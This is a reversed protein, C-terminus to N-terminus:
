MQQASDISLYRVNWVVHNAVADGDDDVAFISVRNEGPRLVMRAINSGPSYIHRGLNPRADSYIRSRVGTLDFFFREDDVIRFDDRFLIQAQADLNEISKLTQMNRFIFQPLADVDGANTVTFQIPALTATASSLAVAVLMENNPGFVIAGIGAADAPQVFPPPYSIGNVFGLMYSAGFTDDPFATDDDSYWFVGNRDQAAAEPRALASTTLEFVEEWTTGNWRAMGRLDYDDDGDRNFSGFAYIFGDRGQILKRVDGGSFGNDLTEWANTVINYRAVGNFDITTDQSMLGQGGGFWIYGDHTSLVCFPASDLGGNPLASWAADTLSAYNVFQSAGGTGGAVFVNGSYRDYALDNVEGGTLGTALEDWNVGDYFGVRRVVVVGVLTFEGGILIYGTEPIVVIVNVDDNPPDDILQWDAGDWRGLNTVVDGGITTFSGGAIPSGDVDFAFAIVQGNTAGTGLNQYVGDKDRFIIRNSVLPVYPTDGFSYASQYEEALYPVSAHFQLGISEQYFNTINGQLGETYACIIQLPLSAIRGLSDTVQYRLILPERRLTRNPRLLDILHQRAEYLGDYDCGFISGTLTFDRPLIRAGRHLEGERGIRVTDLEAPAMGLGIIGTTQFKAHDSFYVVRGGSGTNAKRVSASAHPLGQWYYTEQPMSDYWGNMDGDAYTTAYKKNELQWGDTRFAMSVLNSGPSLLTLAWTSAAISVRTVEIRQWGARQFTFTKSQTVASVVTRLVLQVGAQPVYVDLSWTYAGAPLSETTYTFTADGAATNTLRMAYAGRTAGVADGTVRATSSWGAAVYSATNTHEFSPYKILNETAEPVVVSWWSWAPDFAYGVVEDPLRVHMARAGGAKVEYTAVGGGGGGSQTEVLEILLGFASVRSQASHTEVLVGQKSVRLQHSSTEVLAGTKTAAVAPQGLTEAIVVVESVREEAM